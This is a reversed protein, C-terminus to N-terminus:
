NDDELGVMGLSDVWLKKELGEDFAHPVYGPASPLGVQVLKGAEQCDELYKGGVGEWDKAVAALVTTAAGQELSKVGKWKWWQEQVDAPVYTQLGTHIGGPNVSNAHLGRAGYRREIENAMYINATKSQGYAKFSGYENGPKEFGYDDVKIGSGRHGSSSLIVVRSNFTPTSSKLLLDNLRNFLLFHALHNVGFQTEFGDKTKTLEPIAMVGANCILVNLRGNCRRRVDEAAANVSSLSEMEMEVLEVRGPELIEKLASEAKPINRATLFLTAGTSSLSRATEIGIGSSCGTILMTKDALKGELSDDSIIQQATPRADGPGQVNEHLHAYKASPM